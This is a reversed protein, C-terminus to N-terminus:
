IPHLLPPLTQSIIFKLGVNNLTISIADKTTSIKIPPGIANIQATFVRKGDTAIGYVISVQSAANIIGAANLAFM